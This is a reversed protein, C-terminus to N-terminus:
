HKWFAHFVCYVIGLSCIWRDAVGLRELDPDKPLLSSIKSSVPLTRELPLRLGAGSDEELWEVGGAVLVGRPYKGLPYLLLLLLLM